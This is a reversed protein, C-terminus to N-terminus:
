YLSCTKWQFNRSFLFFVYYATSTLLASLSHPLLKTPPATLRSLAAAVTYKRPSITHRFFYAHNEAQKEWSIGIFYVFFTAYPTLTTTATPPIATTKQLKCAQKCEWCAVGFAFPMLVGLEAKSAFFVFESSFIKHVRIIIVSPLPPLLFPPPLSITDSLLRSHSM